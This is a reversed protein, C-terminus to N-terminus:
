TARKAAMEKALRSLEHRIAAELHPSRLLQGDIRAAGYFPESGTRDVVRIEFADADMETRVGAGELLSVHPPFIERVLRRVLSEFAQTKM